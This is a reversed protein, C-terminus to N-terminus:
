AANGSLKAVMEKAEEIAINPAPIAKDLGNGVTQLSPMMREIFKAILDISNFEPKSFRNDRM